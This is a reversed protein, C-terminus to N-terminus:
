QGSGEVRPLTSGTLLSEGRLATAEWVGRIANRVAAQSLHEAALLAAAVAEIEVWRADVFTRARVQILRVHASLEEPHHSIYSVAEVANHMDNSAGRWNYRGRFRKEAAPGVMAVLAHREFRAAQQASMEIDPRFRDSMRRHLLHGLTDEGPRITVYRFPM